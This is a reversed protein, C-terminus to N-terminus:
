CTRCCRAPRGRRARASLRPLRAPRARRQVQMRREIRRLVTARKYHRFDHGTRARLLGSERLAAEADSSPRLAPPASPASGTTPPRCSSASPTARVADILRQPMEAVPLVLDVMGTRSRPRPMGDYEAESPSRRSADPRRKEKIRKIGIAGDAGTGSLVIRAARERHAEALTRFFLDIAVHRGRPRDAAVVSCSGTSWRCSSAPRSSMSTTRSSRAGDRQGAAGAHADRAAADPRCNSEHKPSLHLIVVFAMGSEPPMREFFQLLGQSGGASAGIGVVTFDAHAPAAATEPKDM